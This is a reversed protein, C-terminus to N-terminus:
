AKGSTLVINGLHDVAADTGQPVALTTTDAEVVAPGSFAHGARLDAYHYVDVDQWGQEHALFARRRGHPRPGGSGTPAQPLESRVPLTGTAYSRYTILQHGAARFGAEAGYLRAYLADFDDAVAAVAAEDIRGASVPTAVESLQMSYRVDVERDVQISAFPLRQASMRERLDAELGDFARQMSEAPVPFNAPDSLEGALVVDSTALGYASFTAATAGLPVVVAKAGLDRSYNVCHVPGAGGFSYVVFDRPDYGANVVVNRVLDAAQANQIAYVAAAADEVDLGLPDGIRERLAKEALGRDLTRRGGLFNDPNVIGLVLDADTVTPEVGGAGYCAPGPRAGASRPGVRLNGGADLWAIAGGGSGITSVKVTPTSITYQNLVTTTSKVPEGDVVMGVLFTTGGIDTSIINDHGLQRGLNRCGILGGTLVSGITTIARAPADEATIAGGSGQMVLLSGDFGRADLQARLPVLYDRLRPGVQTSMITTVNRPYERIRPSLESSLGVYADPAQEHVLERLRREHRPNSFSWLLSVAFAEVGDAILEAIATRAGDEDLPVVVEGGSDVRETIERIRSRPVLPAPKTHRTMNKVYDSDRGAYRGELNMIMISDAHGTTTLFGVRAVDGTVLANLTATTGHCIHSTDRLLSATDLGAAAALEDVANLVGQEFDPPTSPSKASHVRGQEDTAFADTFTGGVDIGIVYTM